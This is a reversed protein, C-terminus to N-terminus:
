TLSLSELSVDFCNIIEDELTRIKKTIENCNQEFCYNCEYLYEKFNM